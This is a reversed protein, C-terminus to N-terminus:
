RKKARKAASKKKGAKEGRAARRRVAEDQSKKAWELFVDEDEFVDDPVTCYPMIGMPGNKGMPQFPKLGRAEYDQRNGDGALLWLVDHSVIAMMLGDLYLGYGGFMFKHSPAGLPALRDMLHDCFENTKAM